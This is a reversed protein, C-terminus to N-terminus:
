VRSMSDCVSCPDPNLIGQMPGFLTLLSAGLRSDCPSIYYPSPVYDYKALLEGPVELDM